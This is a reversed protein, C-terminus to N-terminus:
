KDKFITNVHSSLHIRCVCIFLPFLKKRRKINDRLFQANCPHLKLIEIQNGSFDIM